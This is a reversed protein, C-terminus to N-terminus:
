GVMGSLGKLTHLARSLEHLRASDAASGVTEELALLTRRVTELHEDCESFYDDIFEDFFRGGGTM